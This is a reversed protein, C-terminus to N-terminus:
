RNAIEFHRKYAVGIPAGAGGGYLIANPGKLVEIREVNALADRDGSQLLGDTWRAM